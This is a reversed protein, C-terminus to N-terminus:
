HKIGHALLRGVRRVLKESTTFPNLVLELLDKAVAGAIKRKHMRYGLSNLVTTHYKWFNPAKRQFVLSGLMNYYEKWYRSWCLEFEKPSLFAKGYKALITLDGLPSTHLSKTGSPDAEAHERTFTLVQHVFGFDGERLIDFCIEKDSHPNEERFFDPRKRIEDARVLLSTPSGFLYPGGLLTRRCLVRGDIVTSPYPLGDWAVRDQRLGYAGVLVISPKSEAVDVMKALCEPFLWDDAHVIKCYAAASPMWRLGLNQNALHNLFEPTDRVSIRKDKAAYSGAINRSGDTSRNNVICYQWNQYTQLLVSEICQALYKEGNYVPTLIYVLPQEGTSMNGHESKDNAMITLVCADHQAM